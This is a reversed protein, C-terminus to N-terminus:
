DEICTIKKPKIWDLDEDDYFTDEALDLDKTEHTVSLQVVISGNPPTEHTVFGPKQFPTYASKAGAYMPLNTNM